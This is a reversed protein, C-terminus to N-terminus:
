IKKSILRAGDARPISYVCLVDITGSRPTERRPGRGGGRRARPLALCIRTKRRLQLPDATRVHTAHETVRSHRMFIGSNGRQIPPNRFRGSSIDADRFVDRSGFEFGGDGFFTCGTLQARHGRRRTMIRVCFAHPILKIRSFAIEFNDRVM